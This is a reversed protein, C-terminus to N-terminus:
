LHLEHVFFLVLKMFKSKRVLVVFLYKAEETKINSPNFQHKVNSSIKFGWIVHYILLGWLSVRLDISERTCQVHGQPESVIPAPTEGVSHNSSM